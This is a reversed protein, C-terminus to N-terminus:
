DEEVKDFNHVDIDFNRPEFTLSLYVLFARKMEGRKLAEKLVSDGDHAHEDFKGHMVDYDHGKDHPFSSNSCFDFYFLFLSTLTRGPETRQSSLM